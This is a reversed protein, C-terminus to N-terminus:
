FNPGFKKRWCKLFLIILLKRFNTAVFFPKVVFKKEGREKTVTKPDPIPLFWSRIRSLCGPDATSLKDPINTRPDQNKKWGPNWILPDFFVPNQIRLVPKKKMRASWRSGEWCLISSLFFELIQFCKVVRMEGARATMIVPCLLGQEVFSNILTHLEVM